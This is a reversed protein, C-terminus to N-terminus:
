SLDFQIGTGASWHDILTAADLQVTVAVAISWESRKSSSLARSCLLVPLAVSM